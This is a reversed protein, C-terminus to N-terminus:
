DTPYPSVFELPSESRKFIEMPPDLVTVPVLGSLQRVAVFRGVSTLSENELFLSQLAPLIETATEETVGELGRAVYEALKESVHLTKVATFLRVLELWEADM